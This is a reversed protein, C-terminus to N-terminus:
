HGTPPSSSVPLWRRAAPWPVRYQSLAGLPGALLGSPVREWRSSSVLRRPSPRLLPHEPLAGLARALRRTWMRGGRAHDACHLGSRIRGADCERWRDASGCVCSRRCIYENDEDIMDETNRPRAVRQPQEVVQCSLLRHMLDQGYFQLTEAICVIHLLHKRRTSYAPARITLSMRTTSGFRVSRRSRSGRGTRLPRVTTPSRIM